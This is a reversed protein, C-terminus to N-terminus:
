RQESWLPAEPPLKLKLLLLSRATVTYVEGAAYEHEAGHAPAEFQTDLLLTWRSTALDDGAGPLTLEVAEHHSNVVLLLRM